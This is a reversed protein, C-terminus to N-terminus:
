FGGFRARLTNVSNVYRQTEPLLGNRQVSGLGQYYSAAALSSNGGTSRLLSHLYLTGAAVNDLASNPDLRRAALNQQVWSWTGPLLQMVGRANASSVAANNFGSEQWAIAKALSPPVGNRAAIQGIEAATVRGPAPQPAALPIFRRAPAPTHTVVSSGTPLKLITGVRLVSGTSLGNMFAIQGASVGTRAAIGSLTDGPRVTYGGLPPPSAVMRRVIGTSTTGAATTTGQEAIEEDDGDEIVTASGGAWQPPIVLVHGAHIMSYSSLGNAAALARVSLGDRQAISWLSEGSGITHPVYASASAAHVAAICAAVLSALLSRRM